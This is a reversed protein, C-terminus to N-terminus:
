SVPRSDARECATPRKHLSCGGVLECAIDAIRTHQKNSACSLQAASGKCPSACTRLASHWMCQRTERRRLDTPSAARRRMCQGLMPADTRQLLAELVLAKKAAPLHVGVTTRQLM